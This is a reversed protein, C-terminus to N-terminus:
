GESKYGYCLNTDKLLSFSHPINRDRIYIVNRFCEKNCCKGQNDTCSNYCFTIDDSVWDYKGENQSAIFRM